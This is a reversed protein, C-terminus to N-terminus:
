NRQMNDRQGDHRKREILNLSMLPCTDPRCNLYKKLVTCNDRKSIPVNCSEQTCEICNAPLRDMGTQKVIIHRKSEMIGKDGRRRVM